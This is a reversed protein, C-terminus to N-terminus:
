AGRAAEERLAADGRRLLAGFDGGDLFDVAGSGPPLYGAVLERVVTTARAAARQVTGTIRAALAETDHTRHVRPDLVLRVLQGRPGVTAAIHGDDSTATVEVAALRHRLEDLGSRLREYQDHVEDFRARLARNADRDVSQTM